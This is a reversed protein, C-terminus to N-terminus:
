KGRHKTSEDHTIRLLSGKKIPKEITLKFKEKNFRLGSHQYTASTEYVVIGYTNLLEVDVHGKIHSRGLINRTVNGMILYNEKQQYVTVQGIDAIRSRHTEIEITSSDLKTGYDITSCGSLGVTVMLITVLKLHKNFLM